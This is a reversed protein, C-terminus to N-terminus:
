FAMYCVTRATMTRHLNSKFDRLTSTHCLILSKSIIHIGEERREGEWGRMKGREGRYGERVNGRRGDREGGERM